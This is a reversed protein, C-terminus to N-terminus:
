IAVAPNLVNMLFGSSFIKLYTSKSIVRKEGKRVPRKPKFKKLLGYLGISIFLAAGIYGIIDQHDELFILFSTAINALTVYLIDSLSVGLIFAIGAKYTHHMSYQIIAFLTPGVSLAIFIGLLFGSIVAESYNM